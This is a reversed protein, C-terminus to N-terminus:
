NSIFVFPNKKTQKVTTLGKMTEGRLIKTKTFKIHM